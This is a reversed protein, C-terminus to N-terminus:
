VSIVQRHECSLNFCAFFTTGHSDSSVDMIANHRNVIRYCIPLGLGTGDTKTTLFPTGINELVDPPMGSGQDTVSLVIKDQEMYTRITIDGGTPMAELGNRVLHILLYRIENKDICLKPIAALELKVQAHFTGASAQLLPHLNAILENLNDYKLEARKNHALLLYESIVENTKGLEKLMLDLQEKDNVSEKKKRGMVQLYGCVTTLPNRIEHAISVAMQGVMNLKDIKASLLELHKRATVDRCIGERALARGDQDYVLSFKHDLWVINGKKHVIRFTLAIDETRQFNGVFEHFLLVDDPYILSLFLKPNAYYEQDHYGTAALVSPSIYDFHAKPFLKYRYIIDVANEALLRYQAEKNSLDLRTKEFYVLLTGAAIILRLADALLYGWPTVWAVNVLFPKNLTHVGLLIFAYGTVLRGVGPLEFYRIFVLGAWIYVIGCFWTSPLMAYVFSSHLFAFAMSLLFTGMASYLWYKSGKKNVFILAGYTFLLAAVSSMAQYLVIGSLSQMWHFMGSDLFLSRSLYILWSILWIGMYRERYLIYLYVYVFIMSFMGSMSFNIPYLM